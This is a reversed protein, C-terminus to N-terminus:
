AKVKLDGGGEKAPHELSQYNPWSLVLASRFTDRPIWCQIPLTELWQLDPRLTM